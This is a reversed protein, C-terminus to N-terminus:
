AFARVRYPALLAATDDDVQSSDFQEIAIDAKRFSRANVSVPMDGAAKILNACAQKVAVPLTAYTWGAVYRLRVDSYYSLLIGAPVWVEGTTPSLSCTTPDVPVWAPPGGFASVTALLNYETYAGSIQDSRRGYAYRGVCATIRAAHTRSLRAVSRNKPMGKEETICMGTELAAGSLHPYRVQQLTITGSVANVATIQCTEVSGSVGRDIVVAEGIIDAALLPGTVPVTVGSGVPIPAGAAFAFAPELGLMYAPNGAVDPAWLLGEPRKLFGNIITSARQVDATSAGSAGYAALDAGQLYLVTM